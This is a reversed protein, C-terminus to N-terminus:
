PIFITDSLGIYGTKGGTGGSGPAGLSFLCNQIKADSTGDLVIAISPGGNGGAGTGGVGGKGGNGGRGGNSGDDQESSGGYPNGARTNVASGGWGGAGGNGGLGGTGGAGGNGTNGTIIEVSTLTITSEWLYVGFSGGASRGGLGGNGGAGGSGGGGGGGGYSDCGNDGGGGGGGGAGGGGPIGVLGSQGTQPVFGIMPIFSFESRNGDTGKDGTSGDSGVYAMDPNWDGQKAPAGDGGISFFKGIGYRGAEGSDTGLGGRGGTGGNYGDIGDRGHGGVPRDCTACIGTGNECGPRGMQGAEGHNGPGSPSPSSGDVTNGSNISSNNVIVGKSSILFLGYTSGGIAQANESRITIQELLTTKNISACRVTIMSTSILESRSDNARQWNKSRDFGGYLSVGDHLSFTTDSQFIGSDMYIATSGISRALTIAASISHLPTDKTGPANDDGSPSVFVSKLTDKYVNIQVSDAFSDGFGDNVRLNFLLTSVNPPATFSPSVGNLYGVGDTVDEGLGQVQTWTYSLSQHNPDTSSSGDLTVTSSINVDLDLGANATPSANTAVDVEIEDESSVKDDSVTLKIRYLGVSDPEFNAVQSMTNNLTTNSDSPISVFIWIFTLLDNDPDASNNADLYVSGSGLVITQGIGANAIPSSNIHPSTEKDDDSCGSMILMFLVILAKMYSNFKM